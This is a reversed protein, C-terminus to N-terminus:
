AISIRNLFYNGTNTLELENRVREQVLKLNEPRANFDKIWKANINTYHL